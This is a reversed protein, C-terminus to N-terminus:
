EGANATRPEEKWLWKSPKEAIRMFWDNETGGGQTTRCGWRDPEGGINTM